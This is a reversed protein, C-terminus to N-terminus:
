AGPLTGKKFSAIFEVFDAFKRHDGCLLEHVKKSGEEGFSLPLGPVAGAAIIHLLRIPVAITEMDADIAVVIHLPFPHGAPNQVLDGGKRFQAGLAGFGQPLQRIAGLPQDNDGALGIGALGRGQRGEDIVEVPMM